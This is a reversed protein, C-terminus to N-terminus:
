PARTVVPISLHSPYKASRYIRHTAPAFDTEKALFINPVFTQPNRDILPFWTSQVQVMLRHGRRFSYSQTHLSFSYDLVAGPTIAEPKEFSRRYRGRFVENSVMLQYGALDWNEPNHEPYVDILKVIWDADSGTTAAFLHATVEGAIALDAELPASEFSLVDARHRVFRQDEVLWTRWQSGGPFYTAQIPHRRYPVPHAPDSVYSDLPCRKGGRSGGDRAHRGHGFYLRREETSGTPPWADWRRWRNTGAEFTLAERCRM